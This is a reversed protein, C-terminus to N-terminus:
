GAGISMAGRPTHENARGGKLPSRTPFPAPVWSKARTGPGGRRPFPTRRPTPRSGCAKGKLRRKPDDIRGDMV